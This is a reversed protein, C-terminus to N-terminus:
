PPRGVGIKPPSNQPIPLSMGKAPLSARSSALNSTFVLDSCSMRPNMTPLVTRFGPKQDCSGRPDGRKGLSPHLLFGPKKEGTFTKVFSHRTLVISDFATLAKAPKPSAGDNEKRSLHNGFGIPSRRVGRRVFDTVHAFFNTAPPRYM